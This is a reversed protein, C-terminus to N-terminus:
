DRLPCFSRIKQIVNVYVYLRATTHVTIILFMESDFYIFVNITKMGSEFYAQLLEYKYKAASRPNSTPLLAKM